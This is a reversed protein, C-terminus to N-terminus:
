MDESFFRWSAALALHAFCVETGKAQAVDHRNLESQSNNQM